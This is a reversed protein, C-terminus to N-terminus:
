KKDDYQSVTKCDDSSVQTSRKDQWAKLEDQYLDWVCIACGDECCESASPPAPKDRSM